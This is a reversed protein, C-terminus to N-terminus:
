VLAPEPSPSTEMVSPPGHLTFQVTVRGTPEDGVRVKVALAADPDTKEPQDPAQVPFLRVQTTVRGALTVAVNSRAAMPRKGGGALVSHFQILLVTVTGGWISSKRLRHCESSEAFVNLIYTFSGPLLPKVFVVNVSLAGSWFDPGDSHHHISGNLVTVGLLECAVPWYSAYAVVTSEFPTSLPGLGVAM